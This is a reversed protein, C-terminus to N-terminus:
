GLAHELTKLSNVLEKTYPHRPAELLAHTAASEVLRGGYLIAVRDAWRSVLRLDHSIILMATDSELRLKELLEVIEGQRLVDLGTFPEDAILIRPRLGLALALLVRQRMGGSIEGPYRRAMVPPIGVQDFLSATLNNATTGDWGFHHILAEDIQRGIKLVPNLTNLPSQFLLLVSRGRLRVWSAEDQFGIERGDFVMRGSTVTWPAPLLGALAGATLSKGSGSEGVLAFKEGPDLTLGFGEVQLRYGPGEPRGITLGEVQLLPVKGAM